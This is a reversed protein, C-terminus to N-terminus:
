GPPSAPPAIECSPHSQAGLQRRGNSKRRPFVQSPFDVLVISATKACHLITLGSKGWKRVPDGPGPSIPVPDRAAGGICYRHWNRLEHPDSWYDTDKHTTDTNGNNRTSAVGHRR